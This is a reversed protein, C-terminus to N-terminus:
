RGLGHFLLVGNEHDFVVWVVFHQHSDRQFPLRCPILENDCAISMFRDIAEGAPAFHGSEVRRTERQDKEIEFQWFEIAM